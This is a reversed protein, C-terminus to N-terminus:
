FHHTYMCITSIHVKVLEGAVGPVPTGIAHLLLLLVCLYLLLISFHYCDSVSVAVHLCCAKVNRVM